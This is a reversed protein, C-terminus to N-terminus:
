LTKICFFPGYLRRKEFRCQENRYFFFGKKLTVTARIASQEKRIFIIIATKENSFSITKEEQEKLYKLKNM